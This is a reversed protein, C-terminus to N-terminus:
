TLEPQRATGARRKKAAVTATKPAEPQAKKLLKVGKSVVDDVARRTQTEYRKYLWTGGVGALVGLGFRSLLLHIM